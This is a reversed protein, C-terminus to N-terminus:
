QPVFLTQQTLKQGGVTATATVYVPQAPPTGGYTVTFTALGYSDTKVPGYPKAFGPFNVAIQVPVGAVPQADHTLRVFVKVAGAAPPSPNSVWVGVLYDSAQSTPTSVAPSQQLIIGSPLTATAQPGVPHSSAASAAKSAIVIALVSAICLLVVGAVEAPLLRLQRRWWSDRRDRESWHFGDRGFLRDALRPGLLPLAFTLGDELAGAEDEDEEGPSGDELAAWPSGDHAQPLAQWDDQASSATSTTRTTQLRPQGGDRVDPSDLTKRSQARRRRGAHRKTSM